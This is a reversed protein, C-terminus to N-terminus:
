KYLIVSVGLNRIITKEHFSVKNLERRLTKSSVPNKLHDNLAATIKLDTNKHDKRFIQMLTQYDRDYLEQKRGSNEKRSSTKRGKEFTTM